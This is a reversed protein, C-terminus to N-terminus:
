KPSSPASPSLFSNMKSTLAKNLAATVTKLRMSASLLPEPGGAQTKSSTQTSTERREVEELKAELARKEGELVNIRSKLGDNEQILDEVRGRERLSAEMSRSQLLKSSHMVQVLNEVECIADNLEKWASNSELNVTSESGSDRPSLIATVGAVAKDLKELEYNLEPISPESTNVDETFFANRSAAQEVQSEDSYWASSGVTINDRMHYSQGANEAARQKLYESM